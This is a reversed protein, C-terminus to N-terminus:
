TDGEIYCTHEGNLLGVAVKVNLARDGTAYQNMLEIRQLQHLRCRDAGAGHACTWRDESTTRARGCADLKVLSSRRRETDATIIIFQHHRNYCYSSIREIYRTDAWHQVNYEM